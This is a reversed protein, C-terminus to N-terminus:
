IPVGDEIRETIYGHRKAHPFARIGRELGRERIMKHVRNGSLRKGDERPFLSMGPEALGQERLFSTYIRMYLAHSRSIPIWRFGDRKGNKVHIGRRGSRFDVDEVNLQTLESKRVGTAEFLIMIAVDRVRMFPSAWLQRWAAERMVVPERRPGKRCKFGESMPTHLIGQGGVRVGGYLVRM